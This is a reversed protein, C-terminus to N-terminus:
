SAGGGTPAGPEMPPPAVAAQHDVMLHEHHMQSLHQAADMLAALHTKFFESRTDMVARESEGQQEIGAKVLATKQKIQEVQIRGQTEIQKTKIILGAQQLAQQLQQIQQQMQMMQAQVQPPMQGNKGDDLLGPSQMGIWRKMREAAIDAGAVDKNAFYQDGFVAMGEPWSSITTEWFAEAEERETKHSPGIDCVVAYSGEGFKHHYTEGTKPDVVPQETNVRVISETMDEGLIVIERETDYYWDIWELLVRCMAQISRRLNDSYHFTALSGQSRLQEIARGSQGAYQQKGISPDQLGIVDRLEAATQAKAQSIAAIPPEGWIRIPAGGNVRPDPEFLVYNRNNTNMERWLKEHPGIMQPTVMFPNKSDMALREAEQTAEWNYLVNVDRADRILSGIYRKGEVWMEDGFVPFLPVRTGPLLTPPELEEDGTIIHKVLEKGKTKRKRKPRDPDDEAGLAVDSSGAKEICYYEAVLIHDGDGFPDMWEQPGDAFDSATAKADPWADAFDIRSMPVLKIAWRADERDPKMAHPDFYVSDPDFIPDIRVEHEGTEEDVLVASLQYVGYSSGVAYKSAEQYAISADSDYQIARILGEKVKATEVTGNRRPSVRAQPNNQRIDNVVQNRYSALRNITLAAKGGSIREKRVKEDWQKGILFNKDITAERRIEQEAARASELRKRATAILKEVDYAV